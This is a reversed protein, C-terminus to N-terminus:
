DGYSELYTKGYVNGEKDRIIATNSWTKVIVKYLQFSLGDVM